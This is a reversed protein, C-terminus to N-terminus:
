VVSTKVTTDRQIIRYNDSYLPDITHAKIYDQAMKLTEFSYEVVRWGRMNETRDYVEVDFTTKSVVVPKINRKVLVPTRKWEIITARDVYNLGDTFVEQIAAEAETISNYYKIKGVDGVWTCTKDRYQITYHTQMNITYHDENSAKM